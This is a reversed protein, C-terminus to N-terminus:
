AKVESIDSYYMYQKKVKNESYEKLEGYFKVKMGYKPNKLVECDEFVSVISCEDFFLGSTMDKKMGECFVSYIVKHESSIIKGDNDKKSKDFERMGILTGTYIGIM